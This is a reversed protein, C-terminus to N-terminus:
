QESVLKAALLRAIAWDPVNRTAALDRCGDGIRADITLESLPKSCCIQIKKQAIERLRIGGNHQMDVCGSLVTTKCTGCMGQGCSSAPSLDAAYGADLAPPQIGVRM